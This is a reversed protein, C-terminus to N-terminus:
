TTATMAAVFSDIAAMVADTIGDESVAEEILEDTFSASATAVLEDDGFVMSSVADSIMLRAFADEAIIGADREAVITTIRARMEDLTYITEARFM